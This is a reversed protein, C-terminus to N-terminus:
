PSKLLGPLDAPTYPRYDFYERVFDITIRRFLLARGTGQFRSEIPLWTDQIRRRLFQARSGEHLRAIVGFGFTVDRVAQADVFMVEHDHEHVFVRGVFAHAVTGERTRPRAAHRPAFSIVIAPQGEFTDRGDINFHFLDLAERTLAQERARTEAERHLRADRESQGEREITRQWRRVKELHERDGRALESPPV